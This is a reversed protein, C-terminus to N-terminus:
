KLLQYNVYVIENKHPGSLIKVKAQGADPFGLVTGKTGDAVTLASPAHECKIVGAHDHAMSAELLDMLGQQTTFVLVTGNNGDGNTITQETPTTAQQGVERVTKVLLLVVILAVALGACCSLLTKYM